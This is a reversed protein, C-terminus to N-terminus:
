AFKGPSERYESPSQGTYRKFIRAFYQSSAFGSKFAATTIDNEGARLIEAAARIRERLLYEKPAMGTERSFRHRFGSPTLHAKAALAILDIREHAHKRIYGMSTRIPASSLRGGASAEAAILALLMDSVATRFRIAAYPDDTEIRRIRSFHDGIRVGAHFRRRMKRIGEAFCRASEPEFGILSGDDAFGLMLICVVTRAHTCYGNGHREGARAIYADNASLFEIGNETHFVMRGRAIYHIECTDHVHATHPPQPRKIEIVTCYPLVHSYKHEGVCCSSERNGWRNVVRFTTFPEFAM